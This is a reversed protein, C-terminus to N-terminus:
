FVMTCEEVTILPKPTWRLEELRAYGLKRLRVIVERSSETLEKVLNHLSAARYQKEAIHTPRRGYLKEVIETLQDDDSQPNAIGNSRMFCLAIYYVIMGLRGDVEENITITNYSKAEELFKILTMSSGAAVAANGAITKFVVGSSLAARSAAATGSMATGTFASAPVTVPATCLLIGGVALISIGGVAVTGWIYKQQAKKDKLLMLVATLAQTRRKLQYIKLLVDCTQRPYPERSKTNMAMKELADLVEEMCRVVPPTFHHVLDDVTSRDLDKLLPHMEMLDPLVGIAANTAALGINADANPFIGNPITQIMEKYARLVEAAHNLALLPGHYFKTRVFRTKMTEWEKIQPLHFEQIYLRSYSTEGNRIAPYNLAFGILRDSYIFKVSDQHSMRLQLHSFLFDVFGKRDKLADEQSSPESLLIDMSRCSVDVQIPQPWPGVPDISRHPVTVTWPSPDRAGDDISRLILRVLIALQFSTQRSGREWVSLRVTFDVDVPGSAPRRSAILSAYPNSIPRSLVSSSSSSSM